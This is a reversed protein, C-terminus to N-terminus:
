WNPQVNTTEMSLHLRLKQIYRKSNLVPSWLGARDGRSVKAVELVMGVQSGAPVGVVAGGLVTDMM